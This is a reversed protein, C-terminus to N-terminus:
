NKICRVAMGTDQTTVNYPNGSASNYDLPLFYAYPNSATSSWFRGYRSLYDFGGNNWRLGSGLANFGSENTAGTNPSLWYTTGIQKMKGGAV